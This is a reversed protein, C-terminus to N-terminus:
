IPLLLHVENNLIYERCWKTSAKENSISFTHILVMDLKRLFESTTINPWPFCIWMHSLVEPKAHQWHIINKRFWMGLIRTWLLLVSPDLSLSCIERIFDVVVLGFSGPCFWIFIVGDSNSSLLSHIYCQVWGKFAYPRGTAIGMLGRPGDAWPCSEPCTWQAMTVRWDGSTSCFKSKTWGPWPM